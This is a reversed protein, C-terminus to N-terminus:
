VLKADDGGVDEDESLEADDSEEDETVAQRRGSAAADAAVSGDARGGAAAAALVREAVRVRRLLEDLQEKRASGPPATGVSDIDQTALWPGVDGRIFALLSPVLTPLTKRVATVRRFVEQVKNHFALTSPICTNDPSPLDHFVM